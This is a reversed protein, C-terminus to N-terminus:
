TSGAPIAPWKVNGTGIETKSGTAMEVVLLPPFIRLLSEIADRFISKRNKQSMIRREDVFAKSVTYRKRHAPVSMAGLKRRDTGQHLGYPELIEAAQEFFVAGIAIDIATGTM